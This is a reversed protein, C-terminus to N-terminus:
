KPVCIYYTLPQDFLQASSLQTALQGLAVCDDPDSFESKHLITVNGSVMVWTILIWKM